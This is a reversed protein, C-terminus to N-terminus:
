QLKEKESFSTPFYERFQVFRFDLNRNEKVYERLGFSLRLLAGPHGCWTTARTWGGVHQWTTHLGRAEVPTAREGM